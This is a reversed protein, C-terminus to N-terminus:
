VCRSTYLLCGKEGGYAGLGRNNIDNIFKIANGGSDRWENLNKNYDDILVCESNIEKIYDAKNKGSSTFIMHEDDIQPLYRHIWERKEDEVFPPETDLMQRKYVDLHTYSVAQSSLRAQPQTPETVLKINGCFLSRQRMRLRKASALHITQIVM